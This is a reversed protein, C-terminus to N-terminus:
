IPLNAATLDLRFRRGTKTNILYIYEPEGDKVVTSFMATWHGTLHCGSHYMDHHFPNCNPPFSESEEVKIAVSLDTVKHAQETQFQEVCKAQEADLHPCISGARKQFSAIALEEALPGSFTEVGEAVYAPLEPSAPTIHRMYFVGYRGRSIPSLSLQRFQEITLRDACTGVGISFTSDQKLAAKILAAQAFKVSDTM